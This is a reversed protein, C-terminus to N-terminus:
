FVIQRLLQNLPQLPHLSNKTDRAYRPIAITVLSKLLLYQGLFSDCDSARTYGTVM